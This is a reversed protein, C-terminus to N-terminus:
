PPNIWNEVNNYWQGNLLLNLNWDGYIDIVPWIYLIFNWWYWEVCIYLGANKLSAEAGWEDQITFYLNIEKINAQHNNENIKFYGPDTYREGQHWKWDMDFHPNNSLEVFGHLDFDASENDLDFDLRIPDDQYFDIALHGGQGTIWDINLNTSEGQIELGLELGKLTDVFGGFGLNNIRLREGSTDIDWNAHLNDASVEDVSLELRDLNNESGSNTIRLNNSFIRKSTDFRFYGNTGIKFGIDIYGESIELKNYIEFGGYELNVEIPDRGGIYGRSAYAHGQLKSWYLQAEATAIAPIDTVRILPIKEDFSEYSDGPLYVNIENLNADCNHYIRGYINNNPNLINDIDVHVQLEAGIRTKSPISDEPVNIFVSDDETPDSKPYYLNIEGIKSSMTLDVFGEPRVTLMDGGHMYLSAEATLKEYSPINCAEFFTTDPDEPNAKPYYVIVEDIVSSMDLKVYGGFAVDITKPLITFDTYIDWGFDVRTPIGKIHVKEQFGPANVEIGVSHKHSAEYHFGGGLLNGDIIGLDFMMWHGSRALNSDIRDFILTLSVEEGSGEFINSSFTVRTESSQSKQGFYYYVYGDLPIFETRLYIAPDFEVSFAIDYQVTDTDGKYAQFGYLIEIPDSSTVDYLEHEFITPNFISGEKWNLNISKAFSFRKDVLLPIRDGQPSRYGSGISIYDVDDNDSNSIPINKDYRNWPNNITSRLLTKFYEFCRDKAQMKIRNILQRIIFEPKYNILLYYQKNNLRNENQFSDLSLIKPTSRKILGYNVRLESWVELEGVNDEIGGDTLQRIMYRFELSRAGTGDPYKIISWYFGVRVEVDDEPDIDINFKLIEAYEPHKLFKESFDTPSVPVEQEFTVGNYKLRIWWELLSNSNLNIWPIDIVKEPEDYPNYSNIDMNLYEDVTDILKNTRSEVTNQNNIPEIHTNENDSIVNISSVNESIAISILFLVLVLSFIKKM